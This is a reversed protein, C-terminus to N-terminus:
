QQKETLGVSLHYNDLLEGLVWCSTGFLGLGAAWIELHVSEGLFELKYGMGLWIAQAVIWIAVLM